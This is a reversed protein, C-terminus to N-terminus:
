HETPAPPLITLRNSARDGLGLTAAFLVLALAAPLLAILLM